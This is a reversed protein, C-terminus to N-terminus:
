GIKELTKGFHAYGEGEVRKDGKWLGAKERKVVEGIERGMIKNHSTYVLEFEGGFSLLEEIPIGYDESVELAIKSIPLSDFDIRIGLEDSGMFKIASYIGDSLDMAATGKESIKRGEKVRPRVDLLIEVGEEHGKRWLIYGAAQRGLEGTIYVGQGEEVGGRRLIREREVRGAAFGSFSLLPFEKMDGGRYEVGFESLIDVMGRTFEMLFEEDLDGPLAMSAMFIEPIGGMAAIDSLNVSSFYRGILRPPWNRLFHFGEGIFDTTYLLYWEGSEVAVCDDYEERKGITEWVLDITRREGLEGIRM